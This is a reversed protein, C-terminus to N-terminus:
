NKNAELDPMMGDFEILVKRKKRKRKKTKNKTKAKKKKNYDELNGYVNDITHSYETFAKPNKFKKIRNKERRNIILQYKSKIQDKVYLYIKHMDAQQHKIFNLLM